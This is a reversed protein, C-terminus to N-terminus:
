RINELEKKTVIKYDKPIDFLKVDISKTEVTTAVFRIMMNNASKIEYELPIGKLGPFMTNFSDNPPLLDGTYFFVAKDGNTYTVASRTSLHGALQKKETGPVFVAKEFSKNKQMVEAASMELAYKNGADMNLSTTIGTKTNYIIINNYGSNMALERRTFGNKVTLIYVGDPNDTGNVFVDYKIIGESFIKQSFLKPSFALTIFLLLLKRM